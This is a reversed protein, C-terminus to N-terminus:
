SLFSSFAQSVYSIKAYMVYSPVIGLPRFEDGTKLCLWSKCFPSSLAWIGSIQLMM